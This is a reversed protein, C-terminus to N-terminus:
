NKGTKATEVKKCYRFFTLGNNLTILIIEPHFVSNILGVSNLTILLPVLHLDSLKSVDKNNVKFM